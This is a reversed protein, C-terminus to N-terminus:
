PAVPTRALGVLGSLTPSTSVSESSSVPLQALNFFGRGVMVESGGPRILVGSYLVTRPTAKGSVIDSLIFQGNFLGATTSTGFLLTTAATNATTLTAKAPKVVTFVNSPHRSALELGGGSFTLTANGPVAPLKMVIETTSPVFRGGDANLIMLPIGLRYSRSALDENKRWTPAGTISNNAYGSAVDENLRIVGHLSGKGLLLPAYLPIDGNAATFTVISFASGDALKGAATLAGTAALKFQGYGGGEPHGAPSGADPALAFNYTGVRKQSDAVAQKMGTGTVIGGSSVTANVVGTSEDITFSLLISTKPILLNVVTPNTGRAGSLVGTFPMATVPLTLKGSFSGTATTTIDLRGGLDANVDHNRDILAIFNGVTADSLSEVTIAYTMTAPGILNTATFKVNYTGAKTFQGHLNGTAANVVVGPPLPSATWKTPQGTTTPTFNITAAVRTILPDPQTFQPVAGLVTYDVTTATMVPAGPGSGLTVECTYHGTDGVVVSPITLKASADTIHSNTTLVLGGRQWKYSVTAGTPVKVNTTFNAATAAKVQQTLNQPTIVGLKGANSTVAGVNGTVTVTYAAADATTAKAITYSDQTAKAIAVGNKKWQYTLNGSGNAHATFAVAGGLTILQDAPHLDFSPTVDNDHITITHTIASAPTALVVDGSPSALTLILSKDGTASIVNNDTATFIIFASTEGAPIVVSAGPGGFDAATATGSYSLTITTATTNKKSLSVVLGVSGGETMSSTATDFQVTTRVPPTGDSTVITASAGVAVLRGNAGSVYIVRNFSTSTNAETSRWYLGDFSRLVKGKNGVAVFETTTRTIGNLFGSGVLVRSWSQGDTTTWISGASTVAVFKGNGFTVDNFDQSSGLPVSGGGWTAGNDTSYLATGGFGVGILRTNDANATMGLLVGTMSGTSWTTGAISTKTLVANNAYDYGSAYGKGNVWAVMTWLQQANTDAPVANTWTVGDPSTWIGTGAAVFQTGSFAVSQFNKGSQLRETWTNGDPSTWTIGAGVAVYLSASNAIGRVATPLGPSRRQTWTGTSDQSDVHGGLGVMVISNLFRVGYTESSPLGTTRNVFNVQDTSSYLQSSTAVLLENGTWSLYVGQTGSLLASYETWVVGDVSRWVSDGSVLYQSGTWVISRTAASGTAAALPLSHISWSSGDLSSATAGNMIGVLMQGNWAMRTIPLMNPFTRRTWNVGDASSVIVCSYNSGNVYAGAAVVRSGNWGVCQLIDTPASYKVTWTTSNSSSLINGNNGVAYYTSGAAVVSLIDDTVSVAAKTWSSLDNTSLITGHAGVAVLNNGSSNVAIDLMDNSLPFPYRPMWDTGLEDAHAIRLSSLSAVAALLLPLLFVSRVSFPM